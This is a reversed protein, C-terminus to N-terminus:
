KEEKNSKVGRWDICSGGHSDGSLPHEPPPDGAYGVTIFIEEGSEKNQVTLSHSNCGGRLVEKVFYTGPLICWQHGNKDVQVGFGATQLAEAVSFTSLWPPAMVGCCEDLEGFEALLHARVEENHNETLMRM